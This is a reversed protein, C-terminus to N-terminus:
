NWVAHHCCSFHRLSGFMTALIEGGKRKYSEYYHLSRFVSRQRLWKNKSFLTKKIFYKEHGSFIQHAVNKKLSDLIIM